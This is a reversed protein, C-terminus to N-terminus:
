ILPNTSFSHRDHTAPQLSQSPRHLPTCPLSSDPIGGERPKFCPSYMLLTTSCCSLEEGFVIRQATTVTLSVRVKSVSLPPAVTMSHSSRPPCATAARVIMRSSGTSM